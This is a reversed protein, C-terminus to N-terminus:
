DPRGQRWQYGNGLGRGSRCGPWLPRPWQCTQEDPREGNFFTLHDASTWCDTAPQGTDHLPIGMLRKILQVLQLSLILAALLFLGVCILLPGMDFVRKAVPWSHRWSLLLLVTGLSLWPGYPIERDRRALWSFLASAVALLPAVFFVIVVPQWGIVSGVMAMLVVDGFGMAEQRLVWYGVLRVTWVIGGGVILGALSVLIAHLRPNAAAFEVSSGPFLLPQLWGPFSPRLVQAVSYDQFWLPVLYLQGAAAASVLALIMVPVTCGDPIIRLDFDIFTAVILGCIMAMHLAYRLHLWVPVDWLGTITQPGMVDYLGSTEISQSSKWSSELPMEQWYVLVFLAATLLEILPYRVSIPQRCQRCRGRLLLLWGLLPLNDHWLIASSCRPCGSGHSNLSKLQDWLRVRSPFRHICVNLFSGFCSGLIFLCTLIFPRPLDFMSM